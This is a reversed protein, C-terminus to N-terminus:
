AQQTQRLSGRGAKKGAPARGGAQRGTALPSSGLATTTHLTSCDQAAQTRPTFRPSFGARNRPAPSPPVNHTM